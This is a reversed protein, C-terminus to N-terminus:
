INKAKKNAEQYQHLQWLSSNTALFITNFSSAHQSSPLLSLTSGRKRNAKISLLGDLSIVSQLLAPHIEYFADRLQQAANSNELSDTGDTVHHISTFDPEQLSIFEKLNNWKHQHTRVHYLSSSSQSHRLKAAFCSDVEMHFSVPFLSQM